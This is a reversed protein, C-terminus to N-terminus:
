FPPEQEYPEANATNPPNDSGPHDGSVDASDAAPGSPGTPRPQLFFATTKRLEPPFQDDLDETDCYNEAPEPEIVQPPPLTYNRGLPTTWHTTGDPDRTNLFGGGDKARHHHQCKGDLNTHTTQGGVPQDPHFPEVHDIQCREAPQLCGPTRCTRDRATIFQKLTEPPEYRTRGYDLVTGSAPDYLLRQLTGDTIIARAQDATIAGHGALECPDDSGLLVQYPVLVQIHPRRGHRRTLDPRGGPTPREDDAANIVAATIATDTDSAADADADTDTDADHTRPTQAPNTKSRPCGLRLGQNRRVPHTM